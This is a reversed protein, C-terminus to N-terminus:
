PFFQDWREVLASLLDSWSKNNAQRASNVRQFLDAPLEITGRPKRARPKPPVDIPNRATTSITVPATAEPLVSGDAVLVLLHVDGEGVMEVTANPDVRAAVIDAVQSPLSAVGSACRLDNKMSWTLGTEGKEYRWWIAKNTSVHYPNDQQCQAMFVIMKDLSKNQRLEDFTDRYDQDTLTDQGPQRLTKIENM